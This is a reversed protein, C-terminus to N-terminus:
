QDFTFRTLNDYINQYKTFRLKMESSKLNIPAGVTTISQDAMVEM